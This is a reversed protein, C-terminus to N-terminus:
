DGEPAEAGDELDDFPAADARYLDRPPLPPEPKQALNWREDYGRATVVLDRARSHFVRYADEVPALKAQMDILAKSVKEAESELEGILLGDINSKIFQSWVHTADQHARRAAEDRVRFVSPDQLLSAKAVATALEDEREADRGERGGREIELRLADTADKLNQEAESAADRAEKIRGAAAIAADYLRKAEKGLPTKPEPIPNAPFAPVEPATVSYGGSFIAGQLPM